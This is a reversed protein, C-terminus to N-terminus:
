RRAASCSQPSLVRLTMNPWRRWPKRGPTQRFESRRDFWRRPRRWTEGGGRLDLFGMDLAM